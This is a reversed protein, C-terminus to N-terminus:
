PFGKVKFPNSQNQDPEVSQAHINIVMMMMMPNEIIHAHFRHFTLINFM